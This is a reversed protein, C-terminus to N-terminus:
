HHHHGHADQAEEDDLEPFPIPGALPSAPAQFAATGAAPNAPHDGEPLWSVPDAACAALGTSVVLILFSRM